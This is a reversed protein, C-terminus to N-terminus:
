CFKALRLSFISYKRCLPGSDTAEDSGDRCDNAGDCVWNRPICSGNACTFENTPHCLRFGPFIYFYFYFDHLYAQIVVKSSVCNPTGTRIQM